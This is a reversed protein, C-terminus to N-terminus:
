VAMISSGGIFTVLYSFTSKKSDLDGAMNTDTYGTLVSEKGGFCLKM